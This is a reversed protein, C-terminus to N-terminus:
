QTKGSKALGPVHEIVRSVRGQSFMANALESKQRVSVTNPAQLTRGPVLETCTLELGLAIFGDMVM